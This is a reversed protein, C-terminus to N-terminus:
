NSIATTVSKGNPATATLDFGTVGPDASIIGNRDVTVSGTGVVGSVSFVFGLLHNYKQADAEKIETGYNNVTTLEMLTFANTNARLETITRTKKATVTEVTIPDSKVDVNVTRNVTTGKNTVFAVNITASGTKNGLVYVKRDGAIGVTAVSTNSSQVSTITRPLAVSDGAADTATIKLEKALKSTVPDRQESKLTTGTGYVNDVVAANDGANFISNLPSVSYTLDATNSITEIKRTVTAIDVTQSGTTKYIKATFEASDDIGAADTAFTFKHEKNFQEVGTGTIDATGTWAPLGASTYDAHPVVAVGGYTNTTVTVKYTSGGSTVVNGNQDVRNFEKLEKGYQDYVQIQFKSEAGTGAIIKKASDKKVVFRDPIRADSVTYTKTATSNVNPEAILATVSFVSKSSTPLVNLKIKGKHEGAQQIAAKLNAPTTSLDASSTIKIRRLNEDSTLDELSLQQGNADYAIIPIYADNDGAAVVNDMDGIEIKTAVKASKLAVTGTATGAQNYVTFTYNGEKDVNNKLSIRVDTVEDNNDDGVVYQLAPEYGNFIVRTNAVDGDTAHTNFAIVNGYQDYNILDFKATEGTGGLFDKGNSYKIEGIEMKTIFPTTGVKFNKSATVRTDNHYINVPVIGIGSQYDNSSIDLTLLLEGADNKTLKVYAGNNNGAYVTYAGASISANEGYQNSAKLKVIARNSKAITDNSNLFDIKTITENEATFEASAKDIEAADIGGLTVTYTGASLRQDTLTLVASKKDEAFKVTVPVNVTGKKLALSAKETDVDRNLSVEVRNYGIAKAESVSAKAPKNIEGHVRQAEYSALVLQLRTAASTGGFSGDEGSTVIGQQIALAVYSKAWDSVTKDSVGPTGAVQSELGVGRVLFTALEQKTVEGAPNYQGPAYGDTLGAAKLAEIYPLAYGNAPDNSEVDSFTSTTLSTDVDLNFILAAVKAFQARNMKDNLGFVGESVGDYVGAAILADFKAKTAADLDKLDSFSSSDKAAEAGMAVSSFMSFAMALSLIASLSKKMVKKEGGQIDKPQRSNKKSLNYSSERM